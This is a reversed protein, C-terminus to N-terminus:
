QIKLNYSEKSQECESIIEQAYKESFCILKSELSFVPYKGIKNIFDHYHFGTIYLETEKNNDDLLCITWCKRMNGKEIADIIKNRHTETDDINITLLINGDKPKDTFVLNNDKVYVSLVYKYKYVFFPAETKGHITIPLNFKEFFELARNNRAQLEKSM